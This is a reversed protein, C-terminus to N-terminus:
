RLRGAVLTLPSGNRSQRTLGYWLGRAFDDDIIEGLAEVPLTFAQSRTGILSVVTTRGAPDADPLWVLAEDARTVVRYAGDRKTIFGLDVIRAVKATRLDLDKVFRSGADVYRLSHNEIPVRGRHVLHFLAEESLEWIKRGDESFAVSAEGIAAVVGDM